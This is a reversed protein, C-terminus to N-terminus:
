EESTTEYVLLEGVDNLDLAKMVAAIVRLDPRMSFNNCLRSITPESVGSIKALRYRSMNRQELIEALRFHIM